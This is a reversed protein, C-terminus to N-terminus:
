GYKKYDGWKVYIADVSLVGHMVFSHIWPLTATVVDPTPTENRALTACSVFNGYVGILSSVLGSLFFIWCLVWCLVYVGQIRSTEVYLLQAFVRCFSCFQECGVSTQRHPPSDLGQQAIWM